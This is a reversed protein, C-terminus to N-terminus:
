SDCKSWLKLSRDASSTMMWRGEPDLVLKLINEEHAFRSHLLPNIRPKKRSILRWMRIRNDAGVALVHKDDPTFAVSYQEGQPQNLTDLREGDS